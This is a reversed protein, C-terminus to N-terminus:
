SGIASPTLVFVKIDRPAIRRYEEYGPWIGDFLPWIELVEKADVRRGVVSTIEGGVELVAQPETELNLAWAPHSTRGFNTAAVAHGGAPPTVFLLPITRPEGTKRGTTTLFCLPLDLGFRSPAFRSGKLMVDLPTFVRSLVWRFGSTKSLKTMTRQYVGM